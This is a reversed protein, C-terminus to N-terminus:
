NEEELEVGNFSGDGLFIVNEIILKSNGAVTTTGDLCFGRGNKVKFGYEKLKDKFYKQKWNHKTEDRFRSLLQSLVINRGIGGIEAKRLNASFWASDPSIHKMYEKEEKILTLPKNVGENLYRKYYRLLLLMVSMKMKPDDSLNEKLNPIRKRHRENEPDYDGNGMFTYPLEMPSIRRIMANDQTGSSFQIHHNAQFCCFNPRIPTMKKDYNNRVMITDGGTFLKFTDADFSFKKPPESISNFRKNRGSYLEVSRNDAKIHTFVKYSLANHYDGMAVAM